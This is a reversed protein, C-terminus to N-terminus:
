DIVVILGDDDRILEWGYSADHYLIYQGVPHKDVYVRYVTKEHDRFIECPQGHAFRLFIEKGVKERLAIATRSYDLGRMALAIKKEREAEQRLFQMMRIWRWLRYGPFAVMAAAPVM